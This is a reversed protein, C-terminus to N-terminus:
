KQRVRRMAYDYAALYVAAVNAWSYTSVVKRYGAEGIRAAEDPSCLLRDVAAALARPGANPDALLGTEGDDIISRFVPLDWAVPPTVQAWADLIVMGFSESKSPLVLCRSTRLVDAKEAESVSGFQRVRNRWNEPLAAIQADLQSSELVRVGAIALEADPHRPWVLRMAEILDGMGKSAVQRGLYTVRKMRDPAPMSPPVMDLGVSALFIKERGVGYADGLRDAEHQTLVVVADALSLAKAMSAIDWHPDHEHLMPVMVLPFGLRSRAALVAQVNVVLHPMTMVVDPCFRAIENAISWALRKYLYQRTRGTVRHALWRPRLNAQVWGGVRYLRGSFNLRKVVVGAITQNRAPVREIGFEYYAQVAGVNTTLVRVDHDQAALVESVRKCILEAGGVVPHYAHPIHLVRM